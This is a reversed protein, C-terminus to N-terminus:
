LSSLPAYPKWFPGNLEIFPSDRKKDHLQRLGDVPCYPHADANSICEEVAATTTVYDQKSQGPTCQTETGSERVVSLRRFSGGGRLRHRGVKVQMSMALYFDCFHNM